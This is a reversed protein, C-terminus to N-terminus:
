QNIFKSFKIASARAMKHNTIKITGWKNWPIYNKIQPINRLDLQKKAEEMTKPETMRNKRCHKQVMDLTIDDWKPKWHPNFYFDGIGFGCMFRTSFGCFQDTRLDRMVGPVYRDVEYRGVYQKFWEIQAILIGKRNFGYIPFRNNILHPDQEMDKRTPKQFNSFYHFTNQCANLYEEAYAKATMRLTLKIIGLNLLVKLFKDTATDGKVKRELTVYKKGTYINKYM